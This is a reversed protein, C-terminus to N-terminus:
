KRIQKILRIEQTRGAKRLRNRTRIQLILAAKYEQLALYLAYKKKEYRANLEKAVRRVFMTAIYLKVRKKQSKILM